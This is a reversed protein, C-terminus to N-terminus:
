RIALFQPTNGVFRDSVPLPTTEPVFGFDATRPGLETAKDLYGEADYLVAFHGDSMLVPHVLTENVHDVEPAILTVQRVQLGAVPRRREVLSQLAASMQDTAGVSSVASWTTDFLSKVADIASGGISATRMSDISISPGSTPPLSPARPVISPRAAGATDREILMRLARQADPDQAMPPAYAAMLGEASGPGSPAIAGGFAAVASVASERPMPARTALMMTSSKRAPLPAVLATIIAAAEVEADAPDDRLGARMAPLPAPIPAAVAVTQVSRQAPEQAAVQAAPAQQQGDGFIMSALTRSPRAPVPPEDASALMTTAPRAAGSCPVRRCKNWEAEAYRRGENSLPKGDTPVHLTRGDPFVSKLQARTMRPWARVSGTDLHVFPSGSTPYYGVGGVQRRMAAERLRNLPVGPIFFDMAQGRMHQSNEAVGSSKSRLMENTKPSRYASVIHVPQSGRVEQYVEWILDFLAPDMKAPENRRWDRLFQNLQGLVKQDYQGNRRFTFTGTERTHTYFFTLTRDGSAAIAAGAVFFLSMMAAMALAM